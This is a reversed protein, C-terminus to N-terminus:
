RTGCEESRLLTRRATEQPPDGMRLRRREGENERRALLECRLMEPGRVVNAPLAAGENRLLTHRETAKAKVSEPEAELGFKALVFEAKGDLLIRLQEMALGESTERARAEGSQFAHLKNEREEEELDM